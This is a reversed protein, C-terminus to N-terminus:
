DMPELRPTGDRFRLALVTGLPLQVFRQGGILELSYCGNSAAKAVYCGDDVSYAVSEPLIDRWGVTVASDINLM